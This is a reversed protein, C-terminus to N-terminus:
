DVAGRLKAILPCSVYTDANDQEGEMNALAYDMCQEVINGIPLGTEAKIAALLQYYPSKLRIVPTKDPRPMPEPVKLRFPEM